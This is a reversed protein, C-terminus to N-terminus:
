KGAPCRNPTSNAAGLDVHVAFFTTSGNVADDWKGAVVAPSDPFGMGWSANLYAAVVNRAAKQYDPAGGGTSVLDMMTKGTLGVHPTFFGNFVTDHDFPNDMEPWDPDDPDNWLQSGNGGQWFGPTCGEGFNFFTVVANNSGAYIVATEEGVGDYPPYGVPPIERILYNGEPLDVTVQSTGKAITATDALFDLSGCAPDTGCNYIEFDILPGTWDGGSYYKKKILLTGPLLKNEITPALFDQHGEDIVFDIDAMPDHVSGIPLTEQMVYSGEPLDVWSITGGSTCQQSVHAPLEGGDTRDITFCAQPADQTYQGTEFKKHLSATGAWWRTVYIFTDKTVFNGAADKVEYLIELRSDGPVSSSITVSCDGGVNIDIGSCDENDIQGVWDDENLLNVTVRGNDVAQYGSGDGADFEVYLDVTRDTSISQYADPPVAGAVHFGEKSATAVNGAADM